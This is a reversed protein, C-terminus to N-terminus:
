LGVQNIVQVHGTMRQLPKHDVAPEWLFMTYDDSGSVLRVARSGKAAEYRYPLRHPHLVTRPVSASSYFNLPVDM